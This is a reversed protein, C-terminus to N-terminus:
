VVHVVPECHSYHLYILCIKINLTLIAKSTRKIEIQSIEGRRKKLSLFWSWM